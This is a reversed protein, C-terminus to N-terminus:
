SISCTFQVKGWDVFGYEGALESGTVVQVRKKECAEFFEKDQSSAALAERSHGPLKLERLHSLTRHDLNDTIAKLTENVEDKVGHHAAQYNRFVALSHLPVVLSNLVAPLQHCSGVAIRDLRECGGFISLSNLLGDGKMVVSTVSPAILPFNSVFSEVTTINDPHGEHPASIFAVERLSDQSAVFLQKIAPGCIYSAYLHLRKLRPLSIAEPAAECNIRLRLSELGELSPLALLKTSFPGLGDVMLEKVGVLASLFAEIDPMSVAKASAGWINYWVVEVSRSSYHGVVPSRRIAEMKSLSKVVIRRWLIIQAPYTWAKGILASRCLFGARQYPYLDGTALELIHLLIEPPLSRLTPRQTAQM